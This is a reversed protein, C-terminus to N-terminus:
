LNKCLEKLNQIVLQREEMMVKKCSEIAAKEITLGVEREYRKYLDM